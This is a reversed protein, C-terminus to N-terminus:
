NQESIHGPEGLEFGTCRMTMVHQFEKLAEDIRGLTRDTVALGNWAIYDKPYM